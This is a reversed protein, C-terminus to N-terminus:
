LLLLGFGLYQIKQFFFVCCCDLRLPINKEKEIDRNALSNKRRKYEIKSENEKKKQDKKQKIIMKHNESFSSCFVCNFKNM